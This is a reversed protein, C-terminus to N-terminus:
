FRTHTGSVVECEGVICTSVTETLCQCLDVCVTLCTLGPECCQACLQPLKTGSEFGFVSCLFVTATLTSLTVLASILSDLLLCWAANGVDYHTPLMFHGFRSYTGWKFPVLNLLYRPVPWHASRYVQPLSVSVSVSLCLCQSLSLSVSM